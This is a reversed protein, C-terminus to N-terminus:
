LLRYFWCVSRTFYWDEPFANLVLHLVFHLLFYFIGNRIMIDTLSKFHSFPKQLLYFHKTQAM